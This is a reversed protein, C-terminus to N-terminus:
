VLTSLEDALMALNGCCRASLLGNAGSATWLITIADTTTCVQGGVDEYRFGSKKYRQIYYQLDPEPVLLSLPPDKPLGVLLGGASLPLPPFVM